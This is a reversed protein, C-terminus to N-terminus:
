VGFEVRVKVKVWDRHGCGDNYGLRSRLRMGIARAKTIFATQLRALTLSGMNYCLRQEIIPWLSLFGVFIGALLFPSFHTDLSMVLGPGPTTASALEQGIRGLRIMLTRSSTLRHSYFVDSDRRQYAMIASIGHHGKCAMIVSIGHHGQYAM